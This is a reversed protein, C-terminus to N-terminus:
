GKPSPNQNHSFTLCLVALSTALTLPFFGLLRLGFTTAVRVLMELARGLRLMAALLGAVHVVVMMVMMVM